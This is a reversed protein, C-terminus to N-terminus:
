NCMRRRKVRRQENDQQQRQQQQQRLRADADRQKSRQALAQLASDSRLQRNIEDREQLREEPTQVGVPQPVLGVGVAFLFCTAMGAPTQKRALNESM